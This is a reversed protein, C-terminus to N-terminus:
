SHTFGISALRTSTRAEEGAARWVSGLASTPSLNVAVLKAPGLYASNNTGPITKHSPLCVYGCPLCRMTASLLLALIDDPVTARRAANGRTKRRMGTCHVLGAGNKRRKLVTDCVTQLSPVCQLQLITGVYAHRTATGHKVAVHCEEQTGTRLNTPPEGSLQHCTSRPGPCARM